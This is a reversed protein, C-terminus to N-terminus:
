VVCLGVRVTREWDVRHQVQVTDGSLVSRKLFTKMIEILERQNPYTMSYTANGCATEGKDGNSGAQWFPFVDYINRVKTIVSVQDSVERQWESKEASQSRAEPQVSKICKSLHL